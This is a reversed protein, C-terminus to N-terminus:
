RGVPKVAALIGGRGRSQADSNPCSKINDTLVKLAETQQGSIVTQAHIHELTSTHIEDLRKVQRDYKEDQKKIMDTLFSFGARGFVVLVVLAGGPGMMQAMWDPM